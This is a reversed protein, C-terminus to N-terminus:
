EQQDIKRKTLMILRNMDTGVYGANVIIKHKIM